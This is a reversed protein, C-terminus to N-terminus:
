NIKDFHFFQKGKNNYLFAQFRPYNSKQIIELTLFTAKQAHM